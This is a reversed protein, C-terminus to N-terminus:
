AFRAEDQTGIYPYNLKIFSSISTHMESGIELEMLTQDANHEAHLYVVALECSM